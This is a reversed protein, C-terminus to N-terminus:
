LHDNESLLDDNECSINDQSQHYHRLIHCRIVRGKSLDFLDAQNLIEIITDNVHRHDDNHINVITFRDPKM